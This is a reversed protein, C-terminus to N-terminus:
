INCAARELYKFIRDKYANHWKICLAFKDNPLIEIDFYRQIESMPFDNYNGKLIILTGLSDLFYYIKSHQNPPIVRKIDSVPNRYWSDSSGVVDITYYTNTPENCFKFITKRLSVYGSEYEEFSISSIPNYKCKEWLKIGGELKQYAM